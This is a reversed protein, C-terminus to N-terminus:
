VNNKRGNSPCTEKAKKKYMRKSIKIYKDGFVFICAGKKIYVAVYQM